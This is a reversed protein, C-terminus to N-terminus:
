WKHKQLSLDWPKLFTTIFIENKYTRSEPMLLKFATINNIHGDVLKVDLSTLFNEKSFHFKSLGTM